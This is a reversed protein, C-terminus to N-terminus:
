IMANMILYDINGNKEIKHNIKELIKLLVNGGNEVFKFTVMLHHVLYRLVGVGLINLLMNEQVKNHTVQEKTNTAHTM